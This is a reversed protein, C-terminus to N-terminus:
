ILHKSTVTALSPNGFLVSTLDKTPLQESLLFCLTPHFPAANTQSERSLKMLFTGGIGSTNTPWLLLPSLGCLTDVRQKLITCCLHNSFTIRDDCRLPLKIELIIREACFIITQSKSAEPHVTINTNAPKCFGSVQALRAGSIESWSCLHIFHTSVIEM